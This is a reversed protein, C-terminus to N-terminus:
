MKWGEDIEEGAAAKDSLTGLVSANGNPRVVDARFLCSDVGCVVTLIMKVKTRNFMDAASRNGFTINNPGAERTLIEGKGPFHATERSGTAAKKPFPQTNKILHWGLRSNEGELIHDTQKRSITALIEAEQILREAISGISDAWHQEIGAEPYGLRPGPNEDDGNVIMDVGVREFVITGIPEMGVRNQFRNRRQIVNDKPRHWTRGFAWFVQHIYYFPISRNEIVFAGGGQESEDRGLVLFQEVPERGGM